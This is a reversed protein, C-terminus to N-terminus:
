NAALDTQPKKAVQEYMHTIDNMMVLLKDASLKIMLPIYEGDKLKLSKEMIVFQKRVKELSSNIERNNLKSANLESLAGKFENIATMYDGSYESSTFGWSQLMYLNSMRQSLMRQRGSINVLRSASTGSEDQLLIVVRHSARLVDEALNRLETARTRDIDGSAIQRMPNWLETVKQLQKNVAGTTRFAKLEELQQEFLAIADMLQSESKEAKINLGIQCYTAVIRQSLMRQRGAKNIASSLDTINASANFPLCLTISALLLILPKLTLLKM